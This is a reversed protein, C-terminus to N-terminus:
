SQLLYVLIGGLYGLFAPLSARKTYELFDVKEIGMLAVGAASGILLISGGTGATFAVLLWFPDNIPLDFMGMTAAVIPVNDVIASLLGIVSAISVYDGLTASLFEALRQLLGAAGLADVSLLIGLFFLIGSTDIRTLAATIKLHQRDEKRYHFVDTLFWVVSLGLLIGMFPPLGAVAKLVPVMLLSLVGVVLVVISGPEKKLEEKEIEPYSGKEIMLYIGLPIVMSILSPLFVQAIVNVADIKENIWLMTTTVDGIPSFAGGANAAIVSLCLPTLREKKEPILKKLISIMLIMTTLNDLVSSLFFSIFASIILLASKSRTKLYSNIANFGKHADIVEVLTMASLLFFIIQSIDSLYELLQENVEAFSGSIFLTLWTSAAVFIATAAKSVRTYIEYIIVLYGIIFITM